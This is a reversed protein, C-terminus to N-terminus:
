RLRDSSRVLAEDKKISGYALALFVIALLPFASGIALHTDTGEPLQQANLYGLVAFLVAFLTTLVIVGVAMRMQRPRSKFLFVTYITFLVASLLSMGGPFEKVWYTGDAFFNNGLAALATTDGSATALPLFLPSALVAAALLLYITQIRQIM